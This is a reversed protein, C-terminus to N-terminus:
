DGKIEDIAEAIIRHMEESVEKRLMRSLKSESIGIKDAVRWQPINYMRMKMQLEKNNGPM